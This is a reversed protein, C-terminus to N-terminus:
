DQSLLESARQRGARHFVQREQQNRIGVAQILLEMKDLVLVIDSMQPNDLHVEAANPMARIFEARSENARAKETVQTKSPDDRVNKKAM